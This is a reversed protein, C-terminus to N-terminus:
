IRHTLHNYTQKHHELAECIAKGNFARGICATDADILGNKAMHGLAVMVTMRATRLHESGFRISLDDDITKFTSDIGQIAVSELLHDRKKSM